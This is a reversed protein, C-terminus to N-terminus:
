QTISDYDIDLGLSLAVKADKMTLPLTGDDGIIMVVKHTLNNRLPYGTALKVSTTYSFENTEPHHLWVLNDALNNLKKSAATLADVPKNKAPAKPVKARPAPKKRVKIGGEVYEKVISNACELAAEQDVGRAIFGNCMDFAVSYVLNGVADNAAKMINERTDKPEEM